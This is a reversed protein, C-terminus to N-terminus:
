RIRPDALQGAAKLAVATARDVRSGAPLRRGALECDVALRVPYVLHDVREPVAPIGIGLKEWKARMYGKVASDKSMGCDVSCPRHSRNHPYKRYLFLVDNLITVHAGAHTARTWFDWDEYGDRMAEDYGGVSQWVSKRFVSGSMLRNAIAFDSATPHDGEGRWRQVRGHGFTELTASSIDDLGVLKELFTPVLIDDADLCAIFAGKAQEIGANRAASVGKNEQRICRVSPYRKVVSAVDDTSGDDVVIVEIPPHTQALASEIAEALYEAQDYCPIVISTNKTWTAAWHHVAYTKPTVCKPTYRQQWGYPYLAASELVRVDGVLQTTDDRHWGHNLLVRTFLRPGTENENDAIGTALTSEMLERIFPHGPEAGIVANNVWYRGSEVETGVFVHEALLEDFPRVAEVDLDMYVGGSEFLVALRAYNAALVPKGAAIAADTWANAEFTSHIRIEYDPMAKRWSEIYRDFQAPAPGGLWMGHLIRPIM